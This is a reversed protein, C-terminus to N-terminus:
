ITAGSDENDEYAPLESAQNSSPEWVRQMGAAEIEDPSSLSLRCVSCSFSEAAFEASIGSDASIDAHGRWTAPEVDRFGTATGVSGCSPCITHAQDVGVPQAAATQRIAELVLPQRYQRFTARAAALKVAVIHTVRDRNRSLIATAVSQQSGWFGGRDRRLDVLLVNVNEVFAVMLRMAVVDDTAAHVTGDRMDALAMLDQWSSIPAVLRVRELAARLSVTRLQSFQQDTGAGSKTAIGLLLLVSRFSNENKFEALLVPSRRALCAKALHELATGAYLAVLHHRGKAHAELAMHSYRRASDCLGDVTPLVPM